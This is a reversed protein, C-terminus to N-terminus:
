PIHPALEKIKRERERFDPIHDGIIAYFGKSHNKELIHALEHVIIYDILEPPLLMVKYSYCISNRSSCSGWRARALTIKVDRPQVNMLGAFYLTRETMYAQARVRLQEIESKSLSPPKPSSNVRELNKDIWEAHKEVFADIANQPMDLPARVTVDGQRSVSLSLTRRNSRVLNYNM